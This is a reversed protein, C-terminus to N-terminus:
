PRDLISQLVQVTTQWDNSEAAQEAQALLRGDRSTPVPKQEGGFVRKLIDTLPNVAEEAEAPPTDAEQAYELRAAILCIALTLLPLALRRDTVCRRMRRHRQRDSRGDFRGSTVPTRPLIAVIPVRQWLWGGRREEKTLIAQPSFNCM